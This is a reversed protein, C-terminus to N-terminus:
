FYYKQGWGYSELSYTYLYEQALYFQYRHGAGLKWKM